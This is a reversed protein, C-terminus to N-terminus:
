PIKQAVLKHMEEELKTLDDPTFPDKRYFDYYFGNEIVPGITPKADPFLHLVAQALIHACDHRILGLAAEDDRVIFELACGDPLPLEIDTLVGDIRCAVARKALSPSIAAVVGEGTQGAPFRRQAGDKLRVSIETM